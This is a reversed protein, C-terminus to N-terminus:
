YLFIVRESTRTDGKLYECYLAFSAATGNKFANRDWEAAEDKDFIPSTRYVHSFSQKDVTKLDRLRVLEIETDVYGYRAYEADKKPAYDPYISEETTVNKSSFLSRVLIAFQAGRERALSFVASKELESGQEVRRFRAKVVKGRMISSGVQALIEHMGDVKLGKTFPQILAAKEGEMFFSHVRTRVPISRTNRVSCSILILAMLFLVTRRM